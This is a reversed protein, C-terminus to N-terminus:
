WVIEYAVRLVAIGLNNPNGLWFEQRLSIDIKGYGIKIKDGMGISLVPRVTNIYKSLFVVGAEGTAYFNGFYYRAGTKIPIAIISKYDTPMSSVPELYTKGSFVSLGSNITVSGHKGFTYEGKFSGGYGVNHTKRLSTEIFSVEPGFNISFSGKKNAQAFIQQASQLGIFVVLCLCLKRKM